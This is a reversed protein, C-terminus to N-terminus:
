AGSMEAALRDVEAPDFVAAAALGAMGVLPAREGLVAPGVDLGQAAVAHAQQTLTEALGARFPELAGIEGGVRVLHPNLITV